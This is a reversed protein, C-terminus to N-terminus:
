WHMFIITQLNVLNHIKVPQNALIGRQSLRSNQVDAFLLHRQLRDPRLEVQDFIGFDLEAFIESKVCSEIGQDLAEGGFISSSLLIRIDVIIM